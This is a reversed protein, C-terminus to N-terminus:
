IKLQALCSPSLSTDVSPFYLSHYTSIRLEMTTAGAETL